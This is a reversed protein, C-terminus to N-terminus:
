CRGVSLGTRSRVQINMLDSAHKREEVSAEEFYKALGPLAVNDRSFFASM